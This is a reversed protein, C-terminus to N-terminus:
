VAAYAPLLAPKTAAASKRYSTSETASTDSKLQASPKSWRHCPRNTKYPIIPGAIMEPHEYLLEDTIPVFVLKAM